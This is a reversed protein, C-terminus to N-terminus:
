LNFRGRVNTSLTWNSFFTPLLPAAATFGFDFLRDTLWLSASANWAFYISANDVFPVVMAPSTWLEMSFGSGPSIQLGFDLGTWMKGTTKGSVGFALIESGGVWLAAGSGLLTKFGYSLPITLLADTVAVTATTPSSESRTNSFYQLGLQFASDNSQVRFRAGVTGLQGTTIVVPVQLGLEIGSGMGRAVDTVAELTSYPARLNLQMAETAEVLDGPLVVPRQAIEEPYDSAYIKRGDAGISPDAAGAAIPWWVALAAFTSRM